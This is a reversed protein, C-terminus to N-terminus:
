QFSFMRALNQGSRLRFAAFSAKDAFQLYMNEKLLRSFDQGPTVGYSHGPYIRIDPGLRSKLTELSEFMDYAAHTDSCLGCGEAFLVDGSFLNNGILYCMSGPTHGPTHIPEIRMQGVSWPSAQIGVWRPASLTSLEVNSIWIPCDYFQALPQALHVHDPHAHTVLIGSLTAGTERLAQAIKEMEWAPDVIVSKLTTPDVVLYTFNKMSQHQMSMVVVHPLQPRNM